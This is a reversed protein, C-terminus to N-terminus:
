EIRAAKARNCEGCLIQLNKPSNGGGKSVPIVHDFHLDTTAGCIACRGGDRQWVAQKVSSPIAARKRVPTPRTESGAAAAVALGGLIFMYLFVEPVADFGRRDRVGCVVRGGGVVRALMGIGFVFDRM